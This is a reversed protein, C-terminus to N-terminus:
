LTGVCADITNLEWPIGSSFSYCFKSTVIKKQNKKNRFKMEALLQVKVWEKIVCSVFPKWYVLTLENRM